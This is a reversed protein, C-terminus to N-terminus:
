VGILNPLLMSLCLSNPGKSQCEDPISRGSSIYESPEHHVVIDFICASNLMLIFIQVRVSQSKFFCDLRNMSNQGFNIYWWVFNERKEEEKLNTKSEM